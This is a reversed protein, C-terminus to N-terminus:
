DLIRIREFRGNRVRIEYIPREVDGYADFQVTGMLSHFSHNLIQQRLDESTLTKCRRLAAALIQVAEYARTSRANPPHGLRNQMKEAFALFEPHRNEPDMYSIITLGEVAAGGYRTLDPSQAWLTAILSGDYGKARLKQAILGTMSVETLLVIANPKPSILQDILKDWSPAEDRQFSVAVTKGPYHKLTHQYYDYVYSRNSMDMLFATVAAGKEQLLKATRLGNQHNGVNTRILLDDKGVLETTATYPNFLLVGRSTVVPYSVITNQSTVHGIIAVVDQAILSRDAAIIGQPTNRDDKVLLELTRGHIGGQQNVEEVALMAGERVYENATGGQGSLNIALGIRIAANTHHHSYWWGGSIVAVFAVLLVLGAISRSSKEKPYQREKTKKGTGIQRSETM